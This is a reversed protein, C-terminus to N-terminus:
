ADADNGRRPLLLYEAELKMVEEFEDKHRWRIVRTARARAAKTIEPNGTRVGVSEAPRGAVGEGFLEEFPSASV